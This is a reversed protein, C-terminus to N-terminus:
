HIIIKETRSGNRVIYLGSSLESRDNGVYIGDPTFYETPSNEQCIESVADSPLGTLETFQEPTDWSVIDKSLSFTQGDTGTVKITLTAIGPNPLVEFFAGDTFRAINEDSSSYEVSAIDTDLFPYIGHRWKSVGRDRWQIPKQTRRDLLLDEAVIAIDNFTYVKNEKVEPWMGSRQYPPIASVLYKNTHQVVDEWVRTVSTEERPITEPDYFLNWGRASLVVMDHIKLNEQSKDFADFAIEVCVMNEFSGVVVAAPCSECSKITQTNGLDLSWIDGFNAGAITHPVGPLQVEKVYSSASSYDGGVQTMDHPFQLVFWEGPQPTYRCGAFATEGITTLTSPFRPPLNINRFAGQQITTLGENLEFSAFNVGCLANRGIERLTSPFVINYMIESDPDMCLAEPAITHIGEPLVITVIGDPDPVNRGIYGLLTGKDKSLLFDGEICLYPNHEAISSISIDTYPTFNYDAISQMSAPITVSKLCTGNLAGYGLVRVGEPIDYSTMSEDTPFKILSSGDASYVINDKVMYSSGAEASASTYTLDTLAEIAHPYYLSAPFNVHDFHTGHLEGSSDRWLFPRHNYYGEEPYPYELYQLHPGEGIGVVKYTKDGWKVTSPLAQLDSSLEEPIVGNIIASPSNTFWDLCAFKYGKYTFDCQQGYSVHGLGICAAVSISLLRSFKM